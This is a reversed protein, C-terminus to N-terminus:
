SGSKIWAAIREVIPTMAKRIERRLERNMRRKALALRLVAAGLSDPAHRLSWHLHHVKV